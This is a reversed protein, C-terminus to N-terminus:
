VEMECFADCEESHAADIFEFCTGCYLSECEGDGHWWEDWPAVIGVPNGESDESDEAIFGSDSRGFRTETCDPCHIDAEYTYAIPHM